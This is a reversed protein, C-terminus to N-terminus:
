LRSIEALFFDVPNHFVIWGSGPFFTPLVVVRNLLFNNISRDFIVDCGDSITPKRETRRKGIDDTLQLCIPISVPFVVTM